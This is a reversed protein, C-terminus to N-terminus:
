IAWHPPQAFAAPLESKVAGVALFMLGIHRFSHLLLFPQLAEERNIHAIAPMIYWQAILVFAFTSLVLNVLQIYDNM